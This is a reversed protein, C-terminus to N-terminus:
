VTMHPRNASRNPGRPKAPTAPPRKLSCELEAATRKHARREVRMHAVLEACFDDIVREEGAGGGIAFRQTHWLLSGGAVEQAGKPEGTRHARRVAHLM